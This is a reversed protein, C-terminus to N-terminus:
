AAAPRKGAAPPETLQQVAGQYLSHLLYRLASATQGARATTLLGAAHLAELAEHARDLDWDMLVAATAASTASIGLLGLVEFCDRTSVDEYTLTMLLTQGVTHDEEDTRPTAPRSPLWTPVELLELVQEVPRGAAM